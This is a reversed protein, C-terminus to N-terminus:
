FLQVRERTKPRVRGQGLDHVPDHCVKLLLPFQHSQGTCRAAVTVSTRSDARTRAWRSTLAPEEIAAGRGPDNSSQKKRCAMRRRRTGPSAPRRGRKWVAIITGKAGRAM